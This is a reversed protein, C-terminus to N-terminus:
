YTLGYGYEYLVDVATADVGDEDPQQNVNVPIQDYSRPWTHTLKGSFPADGYLVDAVGIGRSGPLWAAVIAATDTLIRPDDFVLPRGSIIVLVVQAGADLAATLVGYEQQESLLVSPPPSKAFYDNSHHDGAGEAYPIEGIVVVVTSGAAIGSGDQNYTVSGGVQQMGEIITEGIIKNKGYTHSGQWDVTWGGSQCGMSGAWPGAVIVPETKSLPLVGSNELLVLSKQVAQRALDMHAASGIEARLAPNSFAKQFDNSFLDMRHKIRLIRRVADDVREAPITGQTVGNVIGAMWDAIGDTGGWDSSDMAVMSMDIGATIAQRVNEDTYREVGEARAVADYDSLRFGDFGLEGILIDNLTLMDFTMEYTQGDRIWQHYSPMISSVRLDVAAEFPPLHIARLTEMGFATTGLNAGDLTGGDGVFHKATAAVAGPDSLDGGAQLGRIVASAMQRNIEPTEGFGEYSRGWREDRIVSIQPSFNLLIGVGRCEKATARGIAEVLAPDGTAGLGINHPFVTAGTVQANGHVADVGYLIPIGCGDVAAAQLADLSNALTDPTANGIPAEGGGNFVSGYCATRLESAPVDEYQGETMQAAKQELTMTALMADVAAEIRADEETDVPIGTESDTEGGGDPGADAESPDNKVGDDGCATAAWAALLMFACRSNGRFGMDRM